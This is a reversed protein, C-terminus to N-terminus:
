LFTLGSPSAPGRREAQLRLREDSLESVLELIQPHTCILEDFDRRQLRLLAAPGAAAVTATAAGKTLLSIEGFLDGERLEALKAPGAAGAKVVEFAGSVVVYLADAARGEELVREGAAVERAQFREFLRRRDEGGFQAFIRSSALVNALFRERCFRKLVRAVHPYRALLGALVPASIELLETPEDAVASATRPAGSLLAMEGFFDGPGLRALVLDAPARKRVIKVAGSSVAFFSAGVSGEEILTEGPEVRRLGCRSVLEVFAERSLESFLPVEPLDAAGAPLDSSVTLVEIEAAEDVQGIKLEALSLPAPEPAAFWGGAPAAVLAPAAAPAQLGAPQARPLVPARRAASAELDVLDSEGLELESFQFREEPPKPLELCGAAEESGTVGEKFSRPATDLELSEEGSAAAPPAAPPAPAAARPPAAAGPSSRKAYLRALAVQTERHGPEVELIRKCAAVARPLFGQRAYDEAAARYADVAGKSDGAKVRADGLRVRLQPDKPELACLEAYVAAAKDFRGKAFHKAAQDKLERADAM